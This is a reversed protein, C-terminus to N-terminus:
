VKICNVMGRSEKKFNEFKNSLTSLQHLQSTRLDPHLQRAEQEKVVRGGCRQRWGSNQLMTLIETPDKRPIM